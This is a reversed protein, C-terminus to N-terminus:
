VKTRFVRGLVVLLTLLNVESDSDMLVGCLLNNVCRMCVLLEPVSQTSIFSFFKAWLDCGRLFDSRSLCLNTRILRFSRWIWDRSECRLNRYLKLFYSTLM